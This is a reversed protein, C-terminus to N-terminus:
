SNLYRNYRSLYFAYIFFFQTIIEIINKGIRAKCFLIFNETYLQNFIFVHFYSILGLIFLSVAIWFYPVKNISIQPPNNSLFWLYYGSIIIMFSNKVSIGWNGIEKSGEIWTFNILQFIVLSIVLIKLWQPRDLLLYYYYGFFLYAHLYFFTNSFNTDEIHFRTLVPEWFEYHNNASWVFLELCINLILKTLICVLFVRQVGNLKKIILFGVLVPLVSFWTTVQGSLYLWDNYISELQNM